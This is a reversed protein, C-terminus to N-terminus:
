SRSEKWCPRRTAAAIVPSGMFSKILLTEGTAVNERELQMSADSVHHPDPREPTDLM